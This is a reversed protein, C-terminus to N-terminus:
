RVGNASAIVQFDSVADKVATVLSIADVTPNDRVFSRLNKLAVQVKQDARQLKLVVPACTARAIAKDACLKRYGVAASLAVGYASEASVLDTRTVPNTVSGIGACGALAISLAFIVSIRKM